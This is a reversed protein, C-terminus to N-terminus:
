VRGTERRGRVMSRAQCTRTTLAYVRFWNSPLASPFLLKFLLLFGLGM